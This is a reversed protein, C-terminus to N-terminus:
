VLMMRLPKNMMPTIARRTPSTQIPCPVPM